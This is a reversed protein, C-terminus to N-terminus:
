NSSKLVQRLRTRQLHSLSAPYKVAYKVIFNGRQDPTNALPMGLRPFTDSSGPQTLGTKEIQIQNGDITSVARKWGCLSELLTLELEFLLDDGDRTFYPHNKQSFSILNTASLLHVFNEPGQSKSEVGEQIQSLDFISIVSDWFSRV